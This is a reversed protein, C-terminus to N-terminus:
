ETVMHVLRLWAFGVHANRQPTSAFLISGTVTAAPFCVSKKRPNM